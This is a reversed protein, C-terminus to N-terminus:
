TAAPRCMWCVRQPVNAAWSAVQAERRVRLLGVFVGGLGIMILSGPEPVEGVVSTLETYEYTVTM